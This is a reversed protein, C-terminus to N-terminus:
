ESAPTRKGGLGEMMNRLSDLAAELSRDISDAESPNEGTIPRGTPAYHPAISLHAVVQSRRNDNNDAGAVSLWGSYAGTADGWAVRRRADEVHFWGDDEYRDGNIEGRVRVREAEQPTVATVTPVFTPLNEVRSVFAFIDDEPVDM